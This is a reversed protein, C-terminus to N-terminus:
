IFNFQKVPFTSITGLGKQDPCGQGQDTGLGTLRMGRSARWRLPSRFEGPGHTQPVSPRIQSPYAGVARMSTLFMFWAVIVKAICLENNFKLM